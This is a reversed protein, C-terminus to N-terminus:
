KGSSELRTRLASLGPTAADPFTNVFNLILQKALATSEAQIAHVVPLLTSESKFTFAPINKIASNVIISALHPHDTSVLKLVLARAVAVQMEVDNWKTTTSYIQECDIAVFDDDVTVLWQELERMARVLDGLRIATYMEDLMRNLQQQHERQDRVRRREPSNRPEHGIEIRREYMVGAILSFTALILMAVLWIILARWVDALLLWQVAWVAGIIAALILLYWWGMGRITQLLAVPNLSLLVRRTAGLVGIAAPLLSVLVLIVIIRVPGDLWIAFQVIGLVMLLLVLPRVEFISLMEWSAVPADSEGHAISELMSFAYKFVWSVSIFLPVLWLIGTGSFQSPMSVAFLFALLSIFAVSTFHFPFSLARLLTV